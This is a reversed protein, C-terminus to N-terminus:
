QYIDKAAKVLDEAFKNATPLLIDHKRDNALTLFVGYDKQHAVFFGEADPEHIPGTFLTEVAQFTENEWFENQLQRTQMDEHAVGAIRECEGALRVKKEDFIENMRPGFSM